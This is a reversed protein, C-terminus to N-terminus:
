SLTTWLLTEDENARADTLSPHHSWHTTTWSPCRASRTNNTTDQGQLVQHSLPLSHSQNEGTLQNKTTTHHKSPYSPSRPALTIFTRASLLVTESCLYRM